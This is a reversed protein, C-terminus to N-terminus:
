AGNGGVRVRGGIAEIRVPKTIRLTESSSTDAADGRIRVIGGGSVAAIGSALTNFPQSPTGLERAHSSSFDVYAIAEEFTLASNQIAPRRERMVPSQDSPYILATLIGACLAVCAAAAMVEVWGFRALSGRSLPVTQRPMEEQSLRAMLQQYAGRTVAHARVSEQKMAPVLKAWHDYVAAFAKDARVKDRVREEVEPRAQGLLVDIIESETVQHSIM